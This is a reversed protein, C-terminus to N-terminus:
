CTPCARRAIDRNLSARIVARSVTVARVIVNTHAIITEAACIARLVHVLARSVAGHVALTVVSIAMARTIRSPRTDIAANMTLLIM